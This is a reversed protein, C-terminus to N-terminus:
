YWVAGDNPELGEKRRGYNLSEMCFGTLVRIKGGTGKQEFWLWRNRMGMRLRLAADSSSEGEVEQTEDTAM